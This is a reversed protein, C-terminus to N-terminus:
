ENCSVLKDPKLAYIVYRLYIIVSWELVLKHKVLCINNHYMLKQQFHYLVIYRPEAKIICKCAIYRWLAHSKTKTMIIKIVSTSSM